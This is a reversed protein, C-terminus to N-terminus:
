SAFRSVAACGASVSTGALEVAGAGTATAGFGVVDLGEVEVLRGVDRGLVLVDPALLGVVETVALPLV